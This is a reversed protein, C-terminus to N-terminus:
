RNAALNKRKAKEWITTQRGRILRNLGMFVSTNMMLFYYPVFAVKIKINKRALLAGLLALVYFLAHGILTYLYFGGENIALIPHVILLVLLSLPALTWRFVRHSLFQFSTLPYKFPNMLDRLRWSAQLGGASIRVKRKLEESTNASADESAFADPAYAIKYGNRLLKMTMIFDEILSDEAVDEHLETRISFLEGAAGMVSNLEGDWKRLTSEYRWYLNEGASSASDKELANVRKEGAVAGIQPNQYHKVINRLASKNLMANADSFITISTKALPMVRNVASIKGKREDRHEWQIEPFSSIIEGTRDNSGDTVFLYQIKERPYDLTFTNEIKEKIIDEENYAAVLFTLEPLEEEEIPPVEKAPKLKRLLWLVLGYGLYTYLLLLLSVWFLLKFM